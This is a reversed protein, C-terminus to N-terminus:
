RGMWTRRQEWDVEAEIMRSLGVRRAEREAKTATVPRGANVRLEATIDRQHVECVPHGAVEVEPLAESSCWGCLVPEKKAVGDEVQTPM